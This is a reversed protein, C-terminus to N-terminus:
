SGLGDTIAGLLEKKRKWYYSFNEYSVDPPISHDITPIYGGGRVLPLQRALERDIAAKDRALVRKDIGGAM